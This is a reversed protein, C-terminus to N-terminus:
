LQSQSSFVASKFCVFFSCIEIANTTLPLFHVVTVLRTALFPPRYNSSTQIYKIQKKMWVSFVWDVNKGVCNSPFHLVFDLSPAFTAEQFDVEVQKIGNMVNRELYLRKSNQALYEAVRKSHQYFKSVKSANWRNLRIGILYKDNNHFLLTCCVFYTILKLDSLNSHSM